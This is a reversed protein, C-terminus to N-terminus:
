NCSASDSGGGEERHRETTRRKNHLSTLTLPACQWTAHAAVCAECVQSWKATRQRLLGYYFAANHWRRWRRSLSLPGFFFFLFLLLLNLFISSQKTPRPLASCCAALDAPCCREGMKACAILIPKNIIKALPCPVKCQARRRRVKNACVCVCRCLTKKAAQHFKIVSSMLVLSAQQPRDPEFNGPHLLAFKLLPWPSSRSLSAVAMALLLLILLLPPEDDACM